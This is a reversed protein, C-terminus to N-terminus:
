RLGRAEAWERMKRWLEQKAATSLKHAEPPLALLLEAAWDGMERRRRFEHHERQRERLRRWLEPSLPLAPGAKKAPATAGRESLEFGNPPAATADTRPASEAPRAKPPAVAPRRSQTQKLQRLAEMQLEAPTRADKKV